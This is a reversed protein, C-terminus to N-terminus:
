YTNHAAASRAPAARPFQVPTTFSFAFPSVLLCQLRTISKTMLRLWVTCETQTYETTHAPTHTHTNSSGDETCMHIVSTTLHLTVRGAGVDEMGNIPLWSLCGDTMSSSNLRDGASLCPPEQHVSGIKSVKKNIPRLLVELKQMKMYQFCM